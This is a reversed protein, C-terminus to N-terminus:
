FNFKGNQNKWTSEEAITEIVDWHEAIKGNEVRFLDYFSTPVGGEAGFLGESVVLVFNGEGLVKHIRNYQMTIKNEAMWTLAKGLGSLGDGFSPNHQIYLDGNFYSALKDPNQGMLVDKVFQEVLTKNTATKEVDTIETTGDIMTHGSPNPEAPKPQLNDWHEVILGDEYRFIDFAIKEGFFNYETHAFVYDGDQFIRVTNVKAPEPYNALQGLLEGFGALGDGAGLNHQTYNEANIFAVPEQAGTEISKLVALTKEKESPQAVEETADAATAESAENGKPQGCSVLTMVLSSALVSLLLNMKKM